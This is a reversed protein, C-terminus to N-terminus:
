MPRRPRPAPMIAALHLFDSCCDDTDTIESPKVRLLVSLGFAALEYRDHVRAGLRTLGDGLLQIRLRERVM